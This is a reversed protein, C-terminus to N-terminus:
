EAAAFKRRLPERTFRVTKSSLHERLFEEESVNTPVARRCVPFIVLRKKGRKCSEGVGFGAKTNIITVHLRFLAARPQFIETCATKQGREAKM